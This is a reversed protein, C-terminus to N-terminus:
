LSLRPSFFQHKQVITNFFVRSLGKSQLSIWCIWGLPSWHQTNMALVSGSASVGINQGGWAFHQSMPFSGSTSLPQPCSFFPVFSSSIAPYCWQSLPCSNSYARPTPSPCPLWAHQLGHHQLSDSLVTISCCCCCCCISNPTRNPTTLGSGWGTILEGIESQIDKVYINLLQWFIWM